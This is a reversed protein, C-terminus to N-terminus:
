RPYILARFTPASATLVRPLLRQLLDGHGQTLYHNKLYWLVLLMAALVLKLVKTSPYM